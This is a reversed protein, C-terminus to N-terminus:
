WSAGGKLTELERSMRALSIVYVCTQRLRDLEPRSWEALPKMALLLLFDLVFERKAPDDTHEAISALLEQLAADGPDPNDPNQM